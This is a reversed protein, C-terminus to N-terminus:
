TEYVLTRVMGIVSGNDTIPMDQVSIVRAVNEVVFANVRADLEELERRTKFPQLPEGFTKVQIM